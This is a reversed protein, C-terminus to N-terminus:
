PMRRTLRVIRDVARPLGKMLFPDPLETLADSLFRTADAPTKYGRAVLVKAVVPHLSLEGAVVRAAEDLDTQAVEARDAPFIWRPETM